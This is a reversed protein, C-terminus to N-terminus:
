SKLEQLKETMVETHLDYLKKVRDSYPHPEKKKMEEILSLLKDISKMTTAGIPSSGM